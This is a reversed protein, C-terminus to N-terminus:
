AVYFYINTLQPSMSELTTLTSVDSSKWNRVLLSIGDLGYRAYGAVLSLCQKVAAAGSDVVFPILHKTLVFCIVSAATQDPSAICVRMLLDLRQDESFEQHFQTFKLRNLTIVATNQPDGLRIKRRIAHSFAYGPM